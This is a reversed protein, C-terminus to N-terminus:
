CEKLYCGFAASGAVEYFPVNGWGEDYVQRPDTSIRAASVKFIQPFTRPGVALAYGECANLGTMEIAKCM